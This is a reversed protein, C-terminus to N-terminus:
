KVTFRVGEDLMKEMKKDNPVPKDKWHRRDELMADIKRYYEDLLLGLNLNHYPEQLHGNRESKTGYMNVQFYEDNMQKYNDKTTEELAKEYIEQINNLQELEYAM